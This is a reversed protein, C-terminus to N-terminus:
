MKMTDPSPLAKEWKGVPVPLDDETLFVAPVYVLWGYLASTVFCHPWIEVRLGHSV